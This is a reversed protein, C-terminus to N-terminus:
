FICFGSFIILCTISLNRPIFVNAFHLKGFRSRQKSQLDSYSYFFNKSFNKRIPTVQLNFDYLNQPLISLEHSLFINKAIPNIEHCHRSSVMNFIVFVFCGRGGRDTRAFKRILM